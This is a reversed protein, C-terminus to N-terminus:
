KPEPTKPNVNLLAHPTLTKGSRWQNWARFIVNLQLPVTVRMGRRNFSALAEYLAVRPDGRGDMDREAISTIFDIGAQTDIRFFLMSAFTLATPSAGVRKAYRTGFAAAEHVDENEEVWEVVEANTVEGAGHSTASRLGGAEWARALRAVAAVTTAYEHHGKFRLADATSRKAGADIAAQADPDLNRVIMMQVTVGSEIVAILRHQGDIIRGNWDVKISEAVIWKGALMDRAYKRWVQERINRNHINHELLEAAMRPTVEVIEFEVRKHM